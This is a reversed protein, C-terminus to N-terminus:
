AKNYSKNTDVVFKTIYGELISDMWVEVAQSAKNNTKQLEHIIKPAWFTPDGGEHNNKKYTFRELWEHLIIPFEFFFWEHTGDHIYYRVLWNNISLKPNQNETEAFEWLKLDFWDEIQLKM